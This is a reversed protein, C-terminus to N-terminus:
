GEARTMFGGGGKEASPVFFKVHADFVTFKQSLHDGDSWLKNIVSRSENVWQISCAAFRRSRRSIPPSKYGDLPALEYTNETQTSSM